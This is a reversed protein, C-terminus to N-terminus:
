DDFDNSKIVSMIHQQTFGRQQLFRMQKTKENTETPLDTGFRKSRVESARNFWEVQNFDLYAGILSEDVSRQQLEMRIKIPGIGRKIKSSIFGETFRAENLHKDNILQTIVEDINNDPYAKRKLKNRLEFGSHERGALMRIAAAYIKADM